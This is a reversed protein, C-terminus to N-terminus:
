HYNLKSSHETVHIKFAFNASLSEFKAPKQSVKLSMLVYFTELIKNLYKVLTTFRPTAYALHEKGQFNSAIDATDYITNSIVRQSTM